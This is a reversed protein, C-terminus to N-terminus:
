RRLTEAACPARWRRCTSPLPVRVGAVRISRRGSRTARGRVLPCFRAPARATERGHPSRRQVIWDAHRKLLKERPNLWTGGVFGERTGDVEILKGSVDRDDHVAVAAPCRLPMQRADLSM